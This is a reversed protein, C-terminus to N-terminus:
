QQYGEDDDVINQQQQLTAVQQKYAEVREQWQSRYPETKREHRTVAALNKKAIKIRMKLSEAPSFGADAHMKQVVRDAAQVNELAAQIQETKM